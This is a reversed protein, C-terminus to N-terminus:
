NDSKLNDCEKYQEQEQHKKSQGVVDAQTTSALWFLALGLSIYKTMPKIHMHVPVPASESLM